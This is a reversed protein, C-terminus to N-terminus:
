PAIERYCRLARELRELMCSLTADDVSLPPCFLVTSRASELGAPYVVIREDRCITTILSRSEDASLHSSIPLDLGWFLGRGRAQRVLGLSEWYTFTEQISREHVRAREILREKAIVDLVALAAACAAPQAAMTASMLTVDHTRLTNAIEQTVSVANINAYGAALGKGAALIDPTVNYYESAFRYGTRGYGTMTEDFILLAGAQLCRQRIASWFGKPPPVVGGSSGSIPEAVIAAVASGRSALVHDLKRLCAFECSQPSLGLTCDTCTPNPHRYVTSATNHLAKPLRRQGSISMAGFGAGHYSLELSIFDRRTTDGRAWHYHLATRMAAEVSESGTATFFVDQHSSPLWDQRLKDVLRDRQECGDEPHVYSLAQAARMMADIVERRGYGVNVNVAGSAADLVVGDDTTLECGLASRIATPPANHLFPWSVREAPDLKKAFMKIEATM